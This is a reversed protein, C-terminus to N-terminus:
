DNEKILYKEFGQTYYYEMSEMDESAFILFADLHPQSNMLTIAKEKGLVMCATAFGDAELCTNAIVTAGLLDSPRAMGTKPDIIHAYDINKSEYFIRYNGSSAMAKNSINVLQETEKFGADKSPKSIGILWEKKRTSVGKTRLEGGIEVLYNQINLSELFDSIVDVGHGKATASLDIQSKSNEKSVCTKGDITNISFKDMGMLILLSDIKSQNPTEVQARTGYGFGWYNVLPMITPELAGDTAISIERAKAFSHIFYKDESDICYKKEAQNIRSITSSPFYTSLSQNFHILISDIKPKLDQADSYTISYYTGMTEGSISSYSIPKAITKEQKCGILAIGFVLCVFLRMSLNGNM